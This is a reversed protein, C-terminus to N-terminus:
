LSSHLEQMTNRGLNMTVSKADVLALRYLATRDIRRFAMYVSDARHKYPIYMIWQATLVCWSDPRAGM